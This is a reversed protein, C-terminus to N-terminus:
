DFRLYISCCSFSLTVAPANRFFCRPLFLPSNMIWYVGSGNSRSEVWLSRGRGQEERGCGETRAM